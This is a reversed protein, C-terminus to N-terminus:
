QHCHAARHITRYRSRFRGSVSRKRKKAVVAVGYQGGCPLSSYDAVTTYTTTRLETSRLTGRDFGEQSAKKRKKAVVAVGYQGGRQLSSRLETSRLTGRDFGEQSAEKEKKPSSQLEMSDVVRCHPTILWQPTPPLACSQLDCPVAISVRRLRKKEKKPSSQLEMHMSDVVSCQPACSQPGYPVSISVKRLRKKKRKKQRRSVGLRMNKKAGARGNPEPGILPHSVFM